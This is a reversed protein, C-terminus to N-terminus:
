SGPSTLPHQARGQCPHLQQLHCWPVCPFRGGAGCIGADGPASTVLIQPLFWGPSMGPAAFVGGFNGLCVPPHLEFSVSRRTTSKNGHDPGHFFATRFWLFAAGAGKQTQPRGPTRPSACGSRGRSVGNWQTVRERNRPQYVGWDRPNSRASCRTLIANGLSPNRHEAGAPPVTEGCNPQRQEGPHLILKCSLM